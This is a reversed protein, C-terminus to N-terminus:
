SVAGRLKWSVIVRSPWARRDAHEYPGLCSRKEYFHNLSAGKSAKYAAATQHLVPAEDPDHLLRGAYGGYPSAVPSASPASPMSAIPM